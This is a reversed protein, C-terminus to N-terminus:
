DVIIEESPIGISHYFRAVSKNETVGPNEKRPLILINRIDCDPMMKKLNYLASSNFGIIQFPTEKKEAIYLEVMLNPREFGIGHRECLPQTDQGNDRGHPVYIINQSANREKIDVLVSEIGALLNEKSIKLDSCYIDIYTGIIYIDSKTQSTHNNAIVGSLSNEKINFKENPIGSYITYLNMKQNISRVRKYFTNM